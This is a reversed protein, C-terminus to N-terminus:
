KTDLKLIQAVIILFRVSNWNVTQCYTEWFNFGYQQVGGHSCLRAKHKNISGYPFRKRRFCWIALISKVGPLKELHHVVKLHNRKDHDDAAKIMAYIFDAAYEQKLM